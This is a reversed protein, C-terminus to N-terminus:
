CNLLFTLTTMKDESVTIDKPIMPLVKRMITSRFIKTCLSGSIGKDHAALNLIFSDRLKNMDGFKYVGEDIADKSVSSYHGDQIYDTSVIDADDRSAACYLTGYMEKEIWDDSDVFGIYEGVAESVGAKRASVLGENEKNIIKIRKDKSAYLQLIDLSNDTSGDNVCIIEIDELTQSIISDLCRRLYQATNYVPVIISVKIM